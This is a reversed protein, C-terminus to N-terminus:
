ISNYVSDLIESGLLEVDPDRLLDQNKKPAELNRRQKVIGGATRQIKQLRVLTWIKCFSAAGMLAIM